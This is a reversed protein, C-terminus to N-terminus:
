APTAGEPGCGKALVARHNREREGEGNERQQCNRQQAVGRAILDRANERRQLLVQQRRNREAEQQADDAGPNVAADLNGLFEVIRDGDKEEHRDAEDAAVFQFGARAVSKRPQRVGIVEKM